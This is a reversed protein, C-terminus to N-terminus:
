NDIQHYFDFRHVPKKRQSAADHVQPNELRINFYKLDSRLSLQKSGGVSREFSVQVRPKLHSPVYFVVGRKEQITPDSEKIDRRHAFLVQIVQTKQLSEKLM